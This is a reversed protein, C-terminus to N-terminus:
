ARGRGVRVALVLLFAVACLFVTPHAELFPAGLTSMFRIM